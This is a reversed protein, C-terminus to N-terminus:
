LQCAGVASYGPGQMPIIFVFSSSNKDSHKLIGVLEFANYRPWVVFIIVGFTTKLILAHLIFQNQLIWKWHLFNPFVKM